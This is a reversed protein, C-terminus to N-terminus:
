YHGLVLKSNYPRIKNILKEINFDAKVVSYKDNQYFLLGCSDKGRQQSHKVLFNINNTDIKSSSIQGFIGCM